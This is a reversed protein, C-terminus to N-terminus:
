FVPGIAGGIWVKQTHIPIAPTVISLRLAGESSFRRAAFGKMLGTYSQTLRAAKSRKHPSCFRAVTIPCHAIQSVLYSAERGSFLHFQQISHPLTQFGIRQPQRVCLASLQIVANLTM